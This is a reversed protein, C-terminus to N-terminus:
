KKIFEPDKNYLKALEDFSIQRTRAPICYDGYIFYGDIRLFNKVNQFYRSYKKLAINDLTEDALVVDFYNSKFPKALWNGIKVKEKPNKNKMVLSMGKVM